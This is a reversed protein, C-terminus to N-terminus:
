LSNKDEIIINIKHLDILNILYFYSKQSSNFNALMANIIIVDKPIGKYIAKQTPFKLFKYKWSCNSGSIACYM